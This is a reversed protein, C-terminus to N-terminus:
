PARGPDVGDDDAPHWKGGTDPRITNPTMREGDPGFGIDMLFEEEDTLEDEDFDEDDPGPKTAM